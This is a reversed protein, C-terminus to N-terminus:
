THKQFLEMHIHGFTILLARLSSIYRLYLNITELVSNVSSDIEPHNNLDIPMRFVLLFIVVFWLLICPTKKKNKNEFILTEFYTIIHCSGNVM